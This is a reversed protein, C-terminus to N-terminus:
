TFRKELRWASSLEFGEPAKPEDRQGYVNGTLRRDREMVIKYKDSTMIGRNACLRVILIGPIWDMVAEREVMFMTASVLCVRHYLYILGTRGLLDLEMTITGSVAGTIGFMATMIAFPLLAEFPLGM